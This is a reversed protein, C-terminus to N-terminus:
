PTVRLESLPNFNPKVKRLGDSWNPPFSWQVGNGDVGDFNGFALDGCFFSSRAISIPYYKTNPGSEDEVIAAIFGNEDFLYIGLNECELEKIKEIVSQPIQRFVGTFNTAERGIVLPIGGLTDNGGGFTRPAGPETTPAQIYPLLAIKTDDAATMKATWTAKAKIDSTPMIFGNRTGDAAYLRCVAARQIQGFSVPCDSEPITSISPGPPCACLNSM